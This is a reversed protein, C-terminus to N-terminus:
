VLMFFLIDWCKDIGEPPKMFIDKDLRSHLFSRKVDDVEMVWDNKVSLTLIIQFMADNIVPAYKEFHDVGMVQYYGLAM